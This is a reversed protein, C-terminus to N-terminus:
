HVMEDHQPVFINEDSGSTGSIETQGDEVSDGITWHRKIEPLPESVHRSDIVRWSYTDAHIFHRVNGNTSSSLTNVYTEIDNTSSLIEASDDFKEVRMADPSVDESRSMFTVWDVFRVELAVDFANAIDLLTSINWKGYEPTEVRAIASQAKGAAEALDTQTWDRQQRVTKMQHVIWGTVKERLYAERYSKRALRKLKSPKISM